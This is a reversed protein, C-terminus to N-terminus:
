LQSVYNEITIVKSIVRGTETVESIPDSAEVTCTTIEFNDTEGYPRASILPMIENAIDEAMKDGGWDGDTKVIINLTTTVMHDFSTKNVSQQSRTSIIVFPPEESLTAMNYVPVTIDLLDIYYARIQLTPDTM